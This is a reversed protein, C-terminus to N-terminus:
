WDPMKSPPLCDHQRWRIFYVEEEGTEYDISDEIDEQQQCYGQRVRGQSPVIFSIKGLKVVIRGEIYMGLTILHRM